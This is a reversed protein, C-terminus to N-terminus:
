FGLTRIFTRRSFSPVWTAFVEVERLLEAQWGAWGQTETGRFIGEGGRLDRERDGDAWRLEKAGLLRRTLRISHSSATLLVEQSSLAPYHLSCPLAGPQEESGESFEPLLSFFEM